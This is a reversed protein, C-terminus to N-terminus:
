FGDSVLREHGRAAPLRLPKIDTEATSDAADPGYESGCFYAGSIHKHAKWTHCLKTRESGSYPPAHTITAAGIGRVNWDEKRRGLLLETFRQRNIEWEKREEGVLAQESGHLAM